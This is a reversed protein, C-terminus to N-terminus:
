AVAGGLYARVVVPDDLVDASVGGAIVRGGDLAVLRDGTARLLPPDHELVM